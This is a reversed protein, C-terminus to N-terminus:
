KRYSATSDNGLGRGDKTKSGLAILDTGPQSPHSPVGARKSAGSGTKKM